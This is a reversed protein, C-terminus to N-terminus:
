RSGWKPPGFTGVGVEVGRQCHIRPNHHRSYTPPKTMFVHTSGEFGRGWVGSKAEAGMYEGGWLPDSTPPLGWVGVGFGSKPRQVLTNVAGVGVEFGVKPAWLGLGLRLGASATFVHTTTDHIRPHAEMGMYEGGWLPDSTPPLGWVGVEFGM